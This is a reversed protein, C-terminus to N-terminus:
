LESKLNRRDDETSHIVIGNPHFMSTLDDDAWIGPMRERMPGREWLESDLYMGGKKITLGTDIKPLLERRRLEANVRPAQRDMEEELTETM